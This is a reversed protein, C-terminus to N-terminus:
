RSERSLLEAIMPDTPPQAAQPPNMAAQAYPKVYPYATNAVDAATLLAGLPGLVKPLTRLGIRGAVTAATAAGAPLELFPTTDAAVSMAKGAMSALKRGATYAGLTALPKVIGPLPSEIAGMGAAGGVVRQGLTSRLASGAMGVAPRVASSGGMALAGATAMIGPPLMPKAPEPADQRPPQIDAAGGGGGFDQVKNQVVTKISTPDLGQGELNEILSDIESRQAETLPM